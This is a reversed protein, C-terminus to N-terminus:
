RKQYKMIWGKYISSLPHESTRFMRKQYKMIWGKYISSLPHESTRFM